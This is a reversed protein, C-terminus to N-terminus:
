KARPVAVLFVSYVEGTPRQLRVALTEGVNKKMLPELERAKAGAIQKGEVMLVQDGPKIGADAAPRGPVVSKITVSKLTPNLIFGESDVEIAFGFSGPEQEAHVFVSVAMAALAFSMSILTRRNMHISEHLRVNSNLRSRRCAVLGAICIIRGM